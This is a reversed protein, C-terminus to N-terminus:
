GMLAIIPPLLQLPPPPTARSFIFLTLVFRASAEATTALSHRHSNARRVGQVTSSYFHM